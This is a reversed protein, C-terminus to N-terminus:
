GKDERPNYGNNRLVTKACASGFCFFGQSEEEPLEGDTYKGTKWSLELWVSKRPDLERGCNECIDPYDYSELREM